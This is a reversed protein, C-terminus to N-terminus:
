GYQRRPAGSSARTSEPTAANVHGASADMQQAMDAVENGPEGTSVARVRSRQGMRNRSSGTPAENRVVAGPAEIEVM